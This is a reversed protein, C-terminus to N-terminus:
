KASAEVIEPGWRLVEVQVTRRGFKRCESASGMKIDIIRGKILGGTDEVLYTGSYNGAGTVRIKSRLPIVRPDAAVIGRRARTGAKTIGELAYATATFPVAEGLVIDKSSKPPKKELPPLTVRPIRVPPAVQPTVPQCAAVVVFMVFALAKCRM